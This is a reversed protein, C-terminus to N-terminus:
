IVPLGTKNHCSSHSAGLPLKTQSEYECLRLGPGQSWSLSQSPRFCSFALIAFSSGIFQLPVTFSPENIPATNSPLRAHQTARGRAMWWGPFFSGRKVHIM